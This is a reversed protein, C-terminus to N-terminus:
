TCLASRCLGNVAVDDGETIAHLIAVHVHPNLESHDKRSAPQSSDTKWPYADPSCCVEQPSAAEPIAGVAQLTQLLMWPFLYDLPDPSLALPSLVKALFPADARTPGGAALEMLRYDVDM